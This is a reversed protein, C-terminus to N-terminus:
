ILTIPLLMSLLAMLFLGDFSSIISSGLSLVGFLLTQYFSPLMAIDLRSGVGSSRLVGYVLGGGWGEM